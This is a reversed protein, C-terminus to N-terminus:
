SFIMQYLPHLVSAREFINIGAMSKLLYAFCILGFAAFFLSGAVCYILFALSVQRQGEGALRDSTRRERGIRIALYYRRGPVGIGFRRDLIPAFDTMEVPLDAADPARSKQLASELGSALTM